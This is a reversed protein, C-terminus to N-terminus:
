SDVNNGLDVVVNTNEIDENDDPDVFLSSAMLNVSLSMEDAATM